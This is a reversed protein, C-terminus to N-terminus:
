TCAPTSLAISNASGSSSGRMRRSISRFIPLVVIIGFVILVGIFNEEIM